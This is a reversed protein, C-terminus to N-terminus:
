TGILNGNVRCNLKNILNSNNPAHYEFNRVEVGSIDSLAYDMGVEITGAQPMHLSLLLEDNSSYYSLRIDEFAFNDTNSYANTVSLSYSRNSDLNLGGDCSLTAIFRQHYNYVGSMDRAYIHFCAYANLTDPQIVGIIAFALGSTTVTKSLHQRLYISESVSLQDNTTICLTNDFNVGVGSNSVVIGKESDPQVKLQGTTNDLVLGTDTAPTVVDPSLGAAKRGCDAVDILNWFDTELPISRAQFRDKLDQVPIDAATQQVSGAQPVVDTQPAPTIKKRAM